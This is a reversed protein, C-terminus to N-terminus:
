CSVHAERGERLSQPLLQELAYARSGKLFVAGSFDAVEAEAMELSGVGIQAAAHGTGLLAARYDEAHPGLLLARDQPRLRLGALAARHLAPANPGLEAMSGLVYLRPLEAPARLAFGALADALSAPNANYCDALFYKAGHRLWEGRLPAPQWASLAAQAAEDAVGLLQATVVALAANAALGPTMAAPLNWARAEGGTEFM